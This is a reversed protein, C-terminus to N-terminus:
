RWPPAPPRLGSPGSRHSGPLRSRRCRWRGPCGTSASASRHWGPSCSRFTGPRARPGTLQSITLRPSDRVKRSLERTAQGGVLGKELSPLLAPLSLAIACPGPECAILPCGAGVDYQRHVGVVCRRQVRPLLPPSARGHVDDTRDPPPPAARSAPLRRSRVAPMGLARFAQIRDMLVGLRAGHTGKCRTQAPCSLARVARLTWESLGKQRPALGGEVRGGQRQM